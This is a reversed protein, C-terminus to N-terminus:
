TRKTIIGNDDVEFGAHYLMQGVYVGHRRLEDSDGLEPGVEDKLTGNAFKYVAPVSKPNPNVLNSGDKDLHAMFTGVSLAKCFTSTADDGNCLHDGCICVGSSLAMHKRTADRGPTSKLNAFRRKLPPPMVLDVGDDSDTDSDSEEFLARTRKPPAGDSQSAMTFTPAPSSTMAAACATNLENKIREVREVRPENFNVWAACGSIGGVHKRPAKSGSSRLVRCASSGNALGKGGRAMHESARKTGETDEDSQQTKRKKNYVRRGMGAQSSVSDEETTDGTHAHDNPQEGDIVQQSQSAAASPSKIM